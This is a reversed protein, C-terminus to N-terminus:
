AVEHVLLETRCASRRYESLALRPQVQDADAGTYEGIGLDAPGAHGDPNRACRAPGYEIWIDWCDRDGSSRAPFVEVKLNEDPVGQSHPRCRRVHVGDHRSPPGRTPGGCRRSLAM